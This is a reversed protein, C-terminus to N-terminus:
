YGGAHSRATGTGEEKGDSESSPNQLKRHSSNNVAIQRNGGTM